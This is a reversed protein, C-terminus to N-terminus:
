TRLSEILHLVEQRDQASTTKSGNPRGSYRLEDNREFLHRLQARSNEDLAFTSAAMEADVASPDVKKALATKIRVARSAQGFYEEPSVDNRRLERLLEAAEHQLAAIRQGERNDMKAQRIKWGVFGFLAILPLLQAAWFPRRAYIPEFSQVRGREPLQYLIDSPKTTAPTTRGAAPIPIAAAAAPQPPAVSTGEVQVPIPDSRMTVYNEKLPDFYSFSLPPVSSKKENPSIVVEFTKAGSIGVDDDQKFKASSPYKHWGREDELAPANMHDFNGRGAITSTVTIPDGVQVSKPKAETTMTFNGVAGSFTAPPNPPLPKIDLTVPESKLHIEAPEGQFPGFPDSFFPDDFPDRTGFVDFPSRSRPARPTSASRRVLAVATTELSPLEIKGAHIAALACKFTLVRYTVGDITELNQQGEQTRRLTLGQVNLDPIEPRKQFPVRSNVGLRIEAPLVEGVYGARKPVVLELFAIKNTNVTQQRPANPPSRSANSNPAAVHLTLEPTTLSNGAVRITQPPIKFTGAQMPLITYNYIVSSTVNFNNMEVQQETGTRHITLGNASIEEPAEAGRGGTVRIQLQVTEGISAESNSLVATV